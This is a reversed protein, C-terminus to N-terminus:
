VVFWNAGNSVVRVAAWQTSLAYTTAPDITQSSTTGVTVVNGSSDIKKVTYLRGTIGVATPLTVTFAGGTADALITSDTATITYAATKTALATAIPGAVHLRTHATTGIGLAGANDLRARETATGANYTVFVLAGSNDAGSRVAAIQAIDNEVAASDEITFVAGAGFGDIMDATTMSVFRVAFLRASASTSTRELHPVSAAASAVTQVAGTFTKDGDITQDTSLTVGDAVGDATQATQARVVPQIHTANVRQERLGETLTRIDGRTVRAPASDNRTRRDNQILTM